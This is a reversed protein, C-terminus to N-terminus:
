FNAGFFLGKPPIVPLDKVIFSTASMADNIGGAVNFFITVGGSGPGTWKNFQGIANPEIGVQGASLPTWGFGGTGGLGTAGFASGTAIRVQGAAALGPDPAAISTGNVSTGVTQPNVICTGDFRTGSFRNMALMYAGGGSKTVSINPEGAAAVKWFLQKRYIGQLFNVFMTYGAPTSMVTSNDGTFYAILLNGPVVGAPLNCSVSTSGGSSNFSGSEIVVSM